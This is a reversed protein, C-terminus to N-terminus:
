LTAAHTQGIKGGLRFQKGGGTARGVQKARGRSGGMVAVAMEGGCGELDADLLALGGTRRARRAGRAAAQRRRRRAFNRITKFPVGGSARRTGQPRLAELGGMFVATQHHAFVVRRQLRAPLLLAGFWELLAHFVAIGNFAGLTLQDPRMAQPPRAITTQGLGFQLVIEDARGAVDFAPQSAEGPFHLWAQPGGPQGHRRGALGAPRGSAGQFLAVREKGRVRTGPARLWKGWGGM